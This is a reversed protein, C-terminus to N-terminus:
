GGRAAWPSYGHRRWARGGAQEGSRRHYPRLGRHLSADGHAGAPLGGGAGARGDFVRPARAPLASSKVRGLGRRMGRHGILTPLAPDAVPFGIPLPLPFDLHLPAAPWHPLGVASCMATTTAAASPHSTKHGILFPRKVAELSPGIALVWSIARPAPSHFSACLSGCPPPRLHQALRLGMVPKSTVGANAWLGTM